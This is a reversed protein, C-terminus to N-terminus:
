DMWGLLFAGGVFLAWAATIIGAAKPSNAVAAIMVLGFACLLSGFFLSAGSM